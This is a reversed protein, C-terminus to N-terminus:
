HAAQAEQKTGDIAAMLKNKLINRENIVEILVSIMQDNESAGNLVAYLAQRIPPDSKFKAKWIRCFSKYYQGPLAARIKALEDTDFLKNTKEAKKEM